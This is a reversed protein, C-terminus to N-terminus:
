WRLSTEFTVKTEIWEIVMDTYYSTTLDILFRDLEQKATSNKVNVEKRTFEKAGSQDSSRRSGKSYDWEKGIVTVKDGNVQATIIGGKCYEGIKFTKQAM